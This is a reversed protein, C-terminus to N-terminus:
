SGFPLKRRRSPMRLLALYVLLGIGVAAVGALCILPWVPRSATKRVPAKVPKEAPSYFDPIQIEKPEQTLLAVRFETGSAPAENYRVEVKVAASDFKRLTDKTPKEADFVVDIAKVTSPAPAGAFARSIAEVNFKGGGEILGATGFSARIFDLNPDEQRFSLKYVHLGRPPTDLEVGMAQVQKMLLDSPYRPDLATVDVLDAGTPHKHVVVLIQPKTSEFISPGGEQADITPM